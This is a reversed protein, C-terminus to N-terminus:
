ARRRRRILAAAGLALLVMTAPEPVFQINDFQAVNLVSSYEVGGIRFQVQSLEAMHTTTYTKIIEGAETTFSWGTPTVTLEFGTLTTPLSSRPVSESYGTYNVRFAKSPWNVYTAQVRVKADAPGFLVIFCEGYGQTPFAWEGTLTIEDWGPSLDFVPSSAYAYRNAGAGKFSAYLSGGSLYVSCNSDDERLTWKAPDPTTGTNFDDSFIVGARVSGCALVLVAFQTVLMKKASM